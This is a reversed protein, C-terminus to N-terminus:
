ILEPAFARREFRYGVGRVTVIWRPHEPDMEIKQRVRRVHETVSAENGESGEESWVGSLLQARTFVQRPSSALFLLLAFEKHTLEVYRGDVLVEHTKEDIVLGEFDLREEKPATHRLAVELRALLVSTNFPRVVYDQAGQRLGDVIDAPLGRSTVVVAPVHYTSTLTPLLDRGDERALDVELLVIDEHGAALRSRADAVSGVATVNYGAGTLALELDSVQIPNSDVILANM